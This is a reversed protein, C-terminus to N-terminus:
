AIHEKGTTIGQHYHKRCLSIYTGTSGFMIKDGDRVIRGQEDLRANFCAARGCWCVTKINEIKDATLLLRIAGEFGEGQFDTRLGYCIVSIDFDDVIAGLADIQEASLFQAEDVIVVDFDIDQATRGEMSALFDEVFDCEAQLGIRSRITHEGDRSEMRPKLMIPTKGREIYNYRVMLANATKSAGVAGFKFYLKAM